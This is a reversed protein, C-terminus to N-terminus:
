NDRLPIGQADTTIRTGCLILIGEIVGWWAGIGCTFISVALQAFGLGIFGLYFRHVGLGGLFIGLLGAAIKSKANPHYAVPMVAPMAMMPPPASASTDAFEPLHGLPVWKPNTDTQVLSQGDARGERIWERVQEHSIPGYEQGDGGIINYQAM